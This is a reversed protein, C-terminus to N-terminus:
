LSIGYESRLFEKAKAIAKDRNRRAVIHIENVAKSANERIRNAEEEAMRVREDIVNLTTQAAREEVASRELDAKKRIEAIEEDAAEKARQLLHAAEKEVERVSDLLTKKMMTM